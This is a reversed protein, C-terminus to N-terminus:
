IVRTKLSVSNMTLPDSQLSNDAKVFRDRPGTTITEEINEGTTVFHQVPIGLSCM